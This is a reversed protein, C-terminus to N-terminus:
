WSEGLHLPRSAAISAWICVYIYVYIYMIVHCKNWITIYVSDCLDDIRLGVLSWSRALKLPLFNGKFPLWPAEKSTSHHDDMM